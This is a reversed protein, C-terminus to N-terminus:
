SAYHLSPQRLRDLSQSTTQEPWSETRSQVYTKMNIMPNSDTRPTAAKGHMNGVKLFGPISM